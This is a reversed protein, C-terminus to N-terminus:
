DVEVPKLFSRAGLLEPLFETLFQTLRIGEIKESLGVIRVNEHRSRAELDTVKFGLEENEAHM